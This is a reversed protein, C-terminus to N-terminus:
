IILEKLFKKLSNALAPEFDTTYSELKLKKTNEITLINYLNNFLLSYGAETKNNILLFAGPNRKNINNEYYLIVILQSFDSPFIFTGDIYFHKSNQMKKLFFNSLFIIHEHEIYKDSKDNYIIKYTYDRLFINNDKIYKNKFVSYKTFINTNNKWTYYINCFTYNKIQFSCNIKYYLDTAYKRFPM